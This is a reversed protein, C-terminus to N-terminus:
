SKMKSPLNYIPNLRGGSTTGTHEIEGNADVTKVGAVQRGATTGAEAPQTVEIAPRRTGHGSPAGAEALSPLKIWPYPYGRTGYWYPFPIPM